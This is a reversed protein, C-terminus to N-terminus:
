RRAHQVGGVQTADAARAQRRDVALFRGRDRDVADLALHDVGRPARRDVAPPHAGVAADLVVQDHPHRQAQGVGGHDAPHVLGAIRHDAVGQVAIRDGDGLSERVPRRFPGFQGNGSFFLGM